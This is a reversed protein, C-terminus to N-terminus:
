AGTKVALKADEIDLIGKLILKGPWLSKIWEIDNRFPAFNYDALGKENVVNFLM